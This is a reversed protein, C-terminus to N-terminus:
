LVERRAFITGLTQDCQGGLEASASTDSALMGMWRGADHVLLGPGFLELEAGFARARCWLSSSPVLPWCALIKGFESPSSDLKKLISRCHGYDRTRAADM